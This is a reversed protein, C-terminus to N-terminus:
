GRRQKRQNPGLALGGPEDDWRLEKGGALLLGVKQQQEQALRQREAIASRRQQESVLADLRSTLLDLQQKQIGVIDALNKVTDSLQRNREAQRLDQKSTGDQSDKWQRRTLYLGVIAAIATVLSAVSIVLEEYM